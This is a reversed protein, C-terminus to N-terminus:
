KKVNDFPPAQERGARKDVSREKSRSSLSQKEKSKGTPSSPPLKVEFRERTKEKSTVPRPTTSIGVKKKPITQFVIDAAQLSRKKEYRRGSPTSMKGPLAACEM